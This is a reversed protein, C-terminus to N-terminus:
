RRKLIGRAGMVPFLPTAFFVALAVFLLIVLAVSLAQGGFDGVAAFTIVVPGLQLVFYIAAAAGAFRWAAGSAPVEGTAKAWTQGVLLSAM